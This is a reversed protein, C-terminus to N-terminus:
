GGLAPRDLQLFALPLPTAGELILDALAEGLVNTFKFGHGSLGAAFAVHPFEPHRDVVFHEDPTMTYYCVAHRNARTPVDPLCQQIFSEVREVDAPERGPDDTLPDVVEAGGSHEGVKVGLADIEPFGYFIGTPLEFLFAPCGRDARLRDSGSSYWHLHKRLVRLPLKLSALLQAAWAGSTIILSRARHVARDTQVEVSEPGAKWQVVSEGVCHEAGRRVAQEIQQSVCREVLLYGAEQEFVALFDPACAFQPFERVAESATLRDVLLGHALASRLVGSVVIGEAPGFEVLGVRHFLQEGTRAELESWREYAAQLLPVYDSHEFYAKRIV